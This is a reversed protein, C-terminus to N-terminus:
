AAIDVGDTDSQVAIKVVLKHPLCVITEGAMSIPRHGVCIGDPCDAERVLAKGNEIVLVNIGGDAATLVVETDTALPYRAKEVGNELVLVCDGGIRTGHWILLAIVATLIVATLLILDNRIKKRDTRHMM